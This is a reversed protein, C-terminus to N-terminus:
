GSSGVSAELIHCFAAPTEPEARVSNGVRELNKLERKLQRLEAIQRDLEGLHRRIATRVYDCPTTGRDRLGLIEKIEGLTFGTRRATCIFRLREEDEVGYLRYGSKSRVPEPVLGVQEYYRIAKASVGVRRALQGIQFASEM